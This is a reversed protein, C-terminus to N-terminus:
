QNEKGFRKLDRQIDDKIKELWLDLWATGATMEDIMKDLKEQNDM